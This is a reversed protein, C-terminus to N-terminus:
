SPPTPKLWNGDKGYDLSVSKLATKMETFRSKMGLLWDRHKLVESKSLFFDHDTREIAFVPAESSADMTGRNSCLMCRVTTGGLFRFTDGGCVPCRPTDPKSPPAFLAGGMKAAAL